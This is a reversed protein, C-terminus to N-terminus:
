QSSQTHSDGNQAHATTETSSPRPNVNKEPATSAQSTSASRAVSYRPLRSVTNPRAMITPPAAISAPDTSPPTIAWSVFRPTGNRMRPATSATMNTTAASVMRSRPKVGSRPSPGILAVPVTSRADTFYPSPLGGTRQSM